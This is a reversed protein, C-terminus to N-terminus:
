EIVTIIGSIVLARKETKLSTKINHRSGYLTDYIGMRLEWGGLAADKPVQM